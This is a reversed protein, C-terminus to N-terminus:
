YNIVRHILREYLQWVLYALVIGLVAGFIIDTPFHLGVYIQAFSIIAAWLFLPIKIRKYSKGLSFILFFALAFHNAAHSSPFSFGAGCPVLEPVKDQIRQIHCPRQRQVSKKILSSSVFDTLAILIILSIIFFSASRITLKMFAWVIIGIYFPIWILKQRLIPLIADFLRNSWDFHIMEFISLDFELLSELM